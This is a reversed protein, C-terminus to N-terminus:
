FIAFQIACSFKRVEDRHEYKLTLQLRIGRKIQIIRGQIRKLQRLHTPAGAKARAANGSLSLRVLSRQALSEDVARLFDDASRDATADVPASGDVACMFVAPLPRRPSHADLQMLSGPAAAHRFVPGLGRPIVTLHGLLLWATPMSAAQSSATSLHADAAVVLRREAATGVNVAFL